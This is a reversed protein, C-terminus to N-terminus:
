YVCKHQKNAFAHVHPCPQAHFAIPTHNHLTNKLSLSSGKSEAAVCHTVSNNLNMSFMGGHLVIMKHFSDLTYTPPVNAFDICTLALQFLVLPLNQLGCNCCFRSFTPSTPHPFLNTPFTGNIYLIHSLSLRM